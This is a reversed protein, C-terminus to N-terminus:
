IINAYQTGEVETVQYEAVLGEKLIWCNCTPKGCTKMEKYFTDVDSQLIPLEIGNESEITWVEESKKHVTGQLAM